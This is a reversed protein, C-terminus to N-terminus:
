SGRRRLWFPSEGHAQDVLALQRRDDDGLHRDGVVDESVNGLMRVRHRNGITLPPVREGFQFVRDPREGTAQGFPPETGTVAEAQHRGVNGFIDDDEM